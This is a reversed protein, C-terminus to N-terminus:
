EDRIPLAIWFRTGKGEASTIAIVGGHKQVAGKVIALGMGSGKAADTDRVQVFPEFVANQYAAPIGRGNDTYSIYAHPGKRGSFADRLQTPVMAPFDAGDQVSIKIRISLDIEPVRYKMSNVILNQFLLGILSQDFLGIVNGAIQFTGDTVIDESLATLDTLVREAENHLGIRTLNLAHSHRIYELLGEYRRSLRAIRASLDAISFPDRDFKVGKVKSHVGGWARSISSIEDRLDTNVFHRLAETEGTKKYTEYLLTFQVQVDAVLADLKRVDQLTAPKAAVAKDAIIRILYWRISRLPEKFDHSLSRLVADLELADSAVM